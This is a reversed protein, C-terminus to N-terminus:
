GKRKWMTHPSVPVGNKDCDVGLMEEAVLDYDQEILKRFSRRDPQWSYWTADHSVCFLYPIKHRKALCLWQAIQACSCENWSHVNVMLDIKKNELKADLDDLTLTEVYKSFQKTYWECIFTSVPVADVCYVTAGLISELAVALRGYGSGIDLVKLALGGIHRKIFNCEIESELWSRSVSGMSETDVMRIGFRFDRSSENCFCAGTEVVYKAAQEYNGIPAGQTLYLGESCFNPLGNKVKNQWQEWMAVSSYPSGKSLREIEALRPNDTRLYDSATM